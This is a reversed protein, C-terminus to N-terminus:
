IHQRSKSRLQTRCTPSTPSLRARDAPFDRGQCALAKTRRRCIVIDLQQCYENDLGQVECWIYYWEMKEQVNLLGYIVAHM